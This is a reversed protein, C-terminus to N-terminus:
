AETLVTEKEESKKIYFRAERIAFIISRVTLAVFFLVLPMASVIKPNVFFAVIVTLLASIISSFWTYSGLIKFMAGFSTISEVSWLKLVSYALLTVVLPMLAIFPILSFINMAHAYLTLPAISSISNKMFEDVSEGAEVVTADKAVLVGDEMENYFGYFSVVIGNKTEFFATMYDDFIFLYKKVNQSIYEHYYYNRLLPVKSSSEYLSIEPYYNVFYLEYIARNYETKTIKNAALENKLSETKAKNEENLGNVYVIYDEVLEDNLDLAKGTYRIKFDFNLRAVDSLTLYEDYTITLNKGDNSVCYAEIEALTDAPHLDVVVNYGNVSYNQRDAGNEFTNILLNNSYEGGQNKVLLIGDKIEADIRKSLDVNAFVAHATKMLDPSNDYRMGLPLLDGGVFGVWLFAFTLILGIFVNTYGRKAGEKSIEDSFFSLGFFRLWKKM